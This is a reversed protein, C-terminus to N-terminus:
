RKLLIFGSALDLLGVVLLVWMLVTQVDEELFFRPDFMNFLSLAFVGLLIMGVMILFGGIVAAAKGLRGVDEELTFGRM